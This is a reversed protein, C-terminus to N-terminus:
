RSYDRNGVTSSGIQHSVACNREIGKRVDAIQNKLKVDTASKDFYRLLLYAAWPKRDSDLSLCQDGAFADALIWLGGGVDQERLDRDALVRALIVAATDGMGGIVKADHGEIVGREIIRKIVANPTNESQCYSPTTQLLFSGMSLTMILFVNV